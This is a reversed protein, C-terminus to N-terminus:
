EVKCKRGIKNFYEHKKTAEFLNFSCIIIWLHKQIFGSICPPSLSYKLYPHWVVAFIFSHSFILVKHIVVLLFDVKQWFIDNCLFCLCSVCHAWFLLPHKSKDNKAKNLIKEYLLNIMDFAKFHHMNQILVKIKWYSIWLFAKLFQYM